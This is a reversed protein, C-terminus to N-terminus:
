CNSVDDGATAREISHEPVVSASHCRHTRHQGISSTALVKAHIQFGQGGAERLSHSSHAAAQANKANQPEIEHDDSTVPPEDTPGTSARAQRGPLRRKRGWEPNDSLEREQAQGHLSFSGSARVASGPSSVSDSESSNRWPTPHARLGASCTRNLPSRARVRSTSDRQSKNDHGQANSSATHAPGSSRHPSSICGKNDRRTTRMGPHQETKWGQRDLRSRAATAPMSSKAHCRLWAGRLGCNQHPQRGEKSSHRHKQIM